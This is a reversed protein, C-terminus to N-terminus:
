DCTYPGGVACAPETTDYRASRGQSDVCWWKGSNLQVEVCYAQGDGSVPFPDILTGGQLGIDDCLAKINPSITGCGIGSYTNPTQNHCYLMAANRLQGMEAIIRSDKAKTRMGGLAVLIIGALIGIIAIVVLM